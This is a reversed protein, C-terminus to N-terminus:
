KARCGPCHLGKCKADHEGAFHVVLWAITVIVLAPALAIAVSHLLQHLVLVAVASVDLLMGALILPRRYRPPRPKLRQVYVECMGPLYETIPSLQVVERRKLAKAVRSPLLHRNERWIEWGVTSRLLRELEVRRRQEARLQVVTTPSWVQPLREMIM